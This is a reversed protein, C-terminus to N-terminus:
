EPLTEVLELITGDPDKFCVFRVNVGSGPPMAAPESLFEAGAEKLKAMDADMDTTALAIRALGYHYLHAYPPAEDRPEEWELLDITMPADVGEGGLRLLAGKVRYPPMGVAAAVEPTNTEPVAWFEKFGLVEYFARSRDFDSCNINIHVMGSIAM